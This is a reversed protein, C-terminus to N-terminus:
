PTWVVHKRVAISENLTFTATAMQARVTEKLYSHKFGTHSMSPASSLAYKLSLPSM